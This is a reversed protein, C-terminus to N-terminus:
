SLRLILCLSLCGGAKAALWELGERDGTAMLLLMLASLDGARM